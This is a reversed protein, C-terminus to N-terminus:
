KGSIAKLVTATDKKLLSQQNEKYKGLSLNTLAQGIADNYKSTVKVITQLAQITQRATIFKEDSCCALYKDIAGGFKGERDWRLNEAILMVGISRQYSNDSGLKHELADWYGYVANSQQSAAQLLLFAKYRINDDKESLTEVLFQTDQLTLTKAPAPIQTKPLAKLDNVNM